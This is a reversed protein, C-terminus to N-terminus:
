NNVEAVVVSTTIECRDRGNEKAKYLMEDARIMLIENDLNEDAKCCVVGISITLFEGAKSTEHKIERRKISQCIEEALAVSNTEDVDTLIAGFEEGGLRFVFDSPRKLTEKLVKAVSKLAFDGEIHGYTDNYQKFYDIDMMMFTIYSKTRKARKLERDYVFNFYRRNHLSTLVDTYSVNELKKNANQLKKTAIELRTQDKQISKFVYYSIILVGFVTFALIIGINFIIKDYLSLFRKREYKALEIEYNILKKLVNPIHEVRAEFSEIALNDLSIDFAMKNFFDNTAQIELAAYEVYQLEDDRKFHTEYEKWELAVKAIADRIEISAQGKSIQSNKVKYITNSIKGHYVQLINNLEVIPVLSGFYITDLNKKVSATNIYGLIGIIVLGMTILIFLFLLKSKLKLAEIFEM